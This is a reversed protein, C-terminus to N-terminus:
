KLVYGPEGPLKGEIKLVKLQQSPDKVMVFTIGGPMALLSRQATSASTVSLPEEAAEGRFVKARWLGAFEKNKIKLLSALVQDRERLGPACLVLKVQVNGQWFRRDGTLMKRLEPVSLENVPNAANVVVAIDGTEKAGPSSQSGELNSALALALAAILRTKRM